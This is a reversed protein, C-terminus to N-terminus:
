FSLQVWANEPINSSSNKLPYVIKSKNDDNEQDVFYNLKEIKSIDINNYDRDFNNYDIYWYANVENNNIIKISNIIQDSTGLFLIGGNDNGYKLGNKIDNIFKEDETRISILHDPNLIFERIRPKITKKCCFNEKIKDKGTTEKVHDHCLKSSVNIKNSVNAVAIEVHKGFYEKSNNKRRNNIGSVNLILGLATSYPIIKHTKFTKSASHEYSRSYEAYEAKVRLTIQKSM